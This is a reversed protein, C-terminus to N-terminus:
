EMSSLINPVKRDSNDGPAALTMNSMSNTHVAWENSRFSNYGSIVMYSHTHIDTFIKLVSLFQQVSYLAIPERSHASSCPMADWHSKFSSEQPLRYVMSPKHSTGLNTQTMPFFFLTILVTYLAQKHTSLMEVSSSVINSFTRPLNSAHYWVREFCCSHLNRQLKHWYMIGTISTAFCNCRFKFQRLGHQLPLNQQLLTLVTSDNFIVQLM